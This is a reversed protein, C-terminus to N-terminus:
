AVRPRLGEIIMLELPTTLKSYRTSSDDKRQVGCTERFRAVTRSVTAADVGLNVAVDKCKYGLVEKQWVIRWKLDESYASTRRSEISTGM